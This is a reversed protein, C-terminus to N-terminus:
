QSLLETVSQSEPKPAPSRGMARPCFMRETLEQLTVVSESPCTSCQTGCLIGILNYDICNINLNDM